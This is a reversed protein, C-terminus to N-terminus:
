IEAHDIEDGSCRTALGSLEVHVTTALTPEALRDPGVITGTATRLGHQAFANRIACEHPTGNALDGDDDDTALVAILSTPIDVSRRLAGIYLKQTLLIGQAEGLEAILAKRLDWFTGGFILGTKHIEGIDDPWRNEMMPPDLDRLPEDTYFFGRGMQPDGTIQVALFDAAGESMAGDFAGVGTIIEHTHVAHGFEHFVVDQIL